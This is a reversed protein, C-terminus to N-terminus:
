DIYKWHFGLAVSREGRCVASINSTKKGYYNNAAKVSDFVQGTEINMVAKSCRESTKRAKCRPCGSMIKRNTRSNVTAQYDNACKPCTWWVKKCSSFAIEEPTLDGNLKKNWEAAVDPYKDRLSSNNTKMRKYHRSSTVLRHACSPCGNNCVTRQYVTTVWEYGCKSCKWPLNLIGDKSQLMNFDVAEKLKSLDIEAYLDPYEQIFLGNNRITNDHISNLRKIKGCVPCGSGRNRNNPTAKYSEHGLPCKWWFSRDTNLSIDFPTIGNKDTDFENALDPRLVGLSNDRIQKKYSRMIVSFDREIDCEFRCNLLKALQNIASILSEDDNSKVGITMCNENLQPLGDERFRIMKIGLDSCKDNKKNDKQVCNAHNHWACGDYEIACKLSPIYIDIEFGYDMYRSQADPFAKKVYFYIAQEPFSTQFQKQCSDCYKKGQGAVINIRKQYGNGCIPCIWTALKKSHLMEKCPDIDINKDFDWMDKLHPKLTFIDTKGEVVIRGSCGPCGSANIGTRRSPPAIWKTGCIHCKWHVHKDSGSLIDSPLLLNEEYDWDVLLEPNNKELSGYTKILESQKKKQANVYGCKRCGHGKSRVNCSALWINGCKKCIWQYKKNSSYSVTDPSEPYNAVGDWEELCNLLNHNVCWDKFSVM